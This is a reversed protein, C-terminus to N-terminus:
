TKKANSDISEGPLNLELGLRSLQRSLENVARRWSFSGGSLNIYDEGEFATVTIMWFWLRYHRELTYQYGNGHKTQGKAEIQSKRPRM